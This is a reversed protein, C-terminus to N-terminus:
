IIPDIESISIKQITRIESINGNSSTVRWFQYPNLLGVNLTFHSNTTPYSIFASFDSTISIQLNYNNSGDGNWIFDVEVEDTTFVSGNLPTKLTLISQSLVANVGLGSFLFFLFINRFLDNM